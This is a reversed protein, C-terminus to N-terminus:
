FDYADSVEFDSDDLAKEKAREKVMKMFNNVTEELAESMTNGHGVGCYSTNSEMRDRLMLNTYGTFKGQVDEFIKVKFKRWPTYKLEIVNFEAVSKEIAVVDDIKIKKWEEM